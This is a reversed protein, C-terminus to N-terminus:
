KFSKELEQYKKTMGAYKYLPEFSFLMREYLGLFRDFPLLSEMRALTKAVMEPRRAQRYGEATGLFSWLYHQVWDYADASHIPEGSQLVRWQFRSSDFLLASNFPLSVRSGDGLKHPTM